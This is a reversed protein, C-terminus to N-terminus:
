RYAGAGTITVGLTEGGHSTDSPKVLPAKLNRTFPKVPCVTTVSAEVLRVYHTAIEVFTTEAFPKSSKSGCVAPIGALNKRATKCGQGPQTCQPLESFARAAAELKAPSM